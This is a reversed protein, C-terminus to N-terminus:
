PNVNHNRAMLFNSLYRTYMKHDSHLNLIALCLSINPAHEFSFEERITCNHKEDKTLRWYDFAESSPTSPTDQAARMQLVTQRKCDDCVRVSVSAPYSAVQMRHQSCIACVVRGCRRCHHRRNFMSFIM